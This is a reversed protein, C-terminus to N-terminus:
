RRTCCRGRRRRGACTGCRRAGSRRGRGGRASRACHATTASRRPNYQWPVGSTRYARPQYAYATRVATAARPLGGQAKPVYVYLVRSAPVRLGYTCYLPVYADSKTSCPMASAPRSKPRSRRTSPWILCRRFSPSRRTDARLAPSRRAATTPPPPPRRRHANATPPPPPHRHAANPSQPQPQAAPCMCPSPPHLSRM